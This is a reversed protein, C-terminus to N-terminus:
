EILHRSIPLCDVMLEALWVCGNQWQRHIYCRPEGSMYLIHWRSCQLKVGYPMVSLGKLHKCDSCYPAVHSNESAHWHPWMMGNQLCSWQSGTFCDENCYGWCDVPLLSVSWSSKSQKVICQIFFHTRGSSSSSSSVTLLAWILTSMVPFLQLHQRNCLIFCQLYESRWKLVVVSRFAASEWVYCVVYICVENDGLAYSIGFEFSFKWASLEEPTEFTLSFVITV